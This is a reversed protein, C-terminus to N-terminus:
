TSKSLKVAVVADEHPKADAEAVHAQRPFMSILTSNVHLCAHPEFPTYALMNEFYCLQAPKLQRSEPAAHAVYDRICPALAAKLEILHKPELAQYQYGLTVHFHSPIHHEYHYKKALAEIQGCSDADLRVDIQLAGNTYLDAYTLTPSIPNQQLIQNLENFFSQQAAVYDNWSLSLYRNEIEDKTFLNIATVHWSSLPLISYYDTVNKARVVTNIINCWVDFDENLNLKCIVTYGPFPLYHGQFDLKYKPM